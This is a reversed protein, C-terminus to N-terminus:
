FSNYPTALCSGTFTDQSTSASGDLAFKVQFNLLETSLMSTTDNALSSLRLM